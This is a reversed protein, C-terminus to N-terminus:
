PGPERARVLDQTECIEARAFACSYHSCLPAFVFGSRTKSPTEISWPSLRSFQFLYVFGDCYVCCVKHSTKEKLVQDLTWRQLLRVTVGDTKAIQKSQKQLEEIKQKKAAAMIEDEIDSEENNDAKRKHTADMTALIQDSSFIFSLAPIQYNFCSLM